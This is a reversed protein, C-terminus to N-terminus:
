ARERFLFYHATWMALLVATGTLGLQIAIALIQNHPNVSAVAAAGTQGITSRGVENYGAGRSWLRPQTLFLQFAGM